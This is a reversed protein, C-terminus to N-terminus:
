KTVSIWMFTTHIHTVAELSRANENIKYGGRTDYISYKELNLIKGFFKKNYEQKGNLFSLLTTFIWM